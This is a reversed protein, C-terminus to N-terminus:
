GRPWHRPLHRLDSHYPRLQVLAHRRRCHFSMEMLEYIYASGRYTIALTVSFLAVKADRGGTAMDIVTDSAKGRQKLYLGLSGIVIANYLIVM